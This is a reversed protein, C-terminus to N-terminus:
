SRSCLKDAVMKDVRDYCGSCIYIVKGDAEITIIDRSERGCLYCGVM